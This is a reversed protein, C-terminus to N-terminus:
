VEDGAGDKDAGEGEDDQDGEQSLGEEQTLEEQWVEEDTSWGLGLDNGLPAWPDAFGGEEEDEMEGAEFVRDWVEPYSMEADADWSVESQEELELLRSRFRSMDPTALQDVGEEGVDDAAKRVPPRRRAAQAVVEARNLCLPCCGCACWAHLAGEVDDPCAVFRLFTTDGFEMCTLRGGRTRLREQFQRLSALDDDLSQYSLTFLSLRAASLAADEFTCRAVCGRSSLVVRELTPLAPVAVSLCAGSIHLSTLQKFVSAPLRFPEDLSGYSLLSQPCDQLMGVGELKLVRVSRLVDHVRVYEELGALGGRITLAQLKGLLGERLGGLGLEELIETSMTMSISCAAPAILSAPDISILALRQLGDPLLLESTKNDEHQRLLVTELASLPTLDLKGDDDGVGEEAELLLHRLQRLPPLARWRQHTLHLFTLGPASALLSSAWQHVREGGEAAHLTLRRLTALGAAPRQALTTQIADWEHPAELHCRLELELESASGSHKLIFAIDACAPSPSSVWRIRQPKMAHFAKCVASCRAWDWFSLYSLIQAWLPQPLEPVVPHM